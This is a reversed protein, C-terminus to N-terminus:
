VIRSIIYFKKAAVFGTKIKKNILSLTYLLNENKIFYIKMIYIWKIFINKININCITAINPFYISIYSSSIGVYHFVLIEYCIHPLSWSITVQFFLINIFIVAEYLFKLWVRLSTIIRLALTSDVTLIRHATVKCKARHSYLFVCGEKLMGTSKSTKFWACAWESIKWNALSKTQSTFEYSINNGM